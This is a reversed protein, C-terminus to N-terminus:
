RASLARSYGEWAALAARSPTYALAHPRGMQVLRQRLDPDSLLRKLGETIADVELPNVHLAGGGAVETLAPDTSALV